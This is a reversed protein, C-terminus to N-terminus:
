FSGFSLYCGYFASWGISIVSNPITVFTLNSCRSFAESNIELVEYTNGKYTLKSIIYAVGKFGTKDYGSVALHGEKVTYKIYDIYYNKDDIASFISGNSTTGDENVVVIIEPVQQGSNDNNNGDNNDKNNDPNQVIDDEKSCSTVTTLVAMPLLLLLFLVLNKKM